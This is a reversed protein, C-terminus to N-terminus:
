CSLNLFISKKYINGWIKSMYNFFYHIESANFYILKNSSKLEYKDLTGTAYHYLMVKAHLLDGSRIGM